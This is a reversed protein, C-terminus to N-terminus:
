GGIHQALQGRCKDVAANVATLYQKYATYFPQPSWGNIWAQQDKMKALQQDNIFQIMPLEAQMVALMEQALEPFYLNQLMEAEALPSPLDHEQGRFLAATQKDKMWQSHGYLAKVLAEIRERRLSARDRSRSLKHALLQGIVGGVIALAAGVLVPITKAIESLITPEM